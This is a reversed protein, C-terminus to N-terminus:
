KGWPTGKQQRVEELNKYIINRELVRPINGSGLSFVDGGVRDIAMFNWNLFSTCQPGKTPKAQPYSFCITKNDPMNWTGIVPVKNNPFWLYSAGDAKYFAIQNSFGFGVFLVTKNILLNNIEQQSYGHAERKRAEAPDLSRSFVTNSKGSSIASQEKRLGAPMCASVALVIFTLFLCYLPKM